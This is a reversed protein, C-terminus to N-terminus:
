LNLRGDEELKGVVELLGLEQFELVNKSSVPLKGAEWRQDGGFPKARSTSVQPQRLPWIYIAGGLQFCHMHLPEM